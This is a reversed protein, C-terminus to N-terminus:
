PLAALVAHYDPEDNIERVLQSYRVVGTGDIVLAARALMGKLPGNIMLVGYDRAFAPDRFCSAVEVHKLHAGRLYRGQAFPLDCSVTLVSVDKRGAAMSEDFRKMSVPCTDTDVSLVINLILARGAYDSLRVDSLNTKVLTFAPARSGVAPLDGCTDAPTGTLTIKAM